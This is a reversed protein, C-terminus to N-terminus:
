SFYYQTENHQTRKIPLLAANGMESMLFTRFGWKPMWGAVSVRSIQRTVMWIEVQINYKARYEQAVAPGKSEKQAFVPNRDAAGDPSESFAVRLALLLLVPFRPVCNHHHNSSHWIGGSLWPMQSHWFVFHLNLSCHSCFQSGFSVYIRFYESTQTFMEQIRCTFYLKHGFASLLISRKKRFLFPAGPWSLSCFWQM